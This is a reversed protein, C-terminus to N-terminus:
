ACMSVPLVGPRGAYDGASSHLWLEPTEVYGKRVPNFHLYEIKQKLMEEDKIRKPHSGEQWFQYTRDKKHDLKLLVLKELVAQNHSKQFYEICKRATFSKFNAIQVSLNESSAVLHLHDTMIVYAHLELRQTQILFRLSDFLIGAIEPETFLPLWSVTTATIFYPNPDGPFFHYRSRAM